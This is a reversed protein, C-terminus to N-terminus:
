LQRAHDAAGCDACLGPICLQQLAAHFGHDAKLRQALAQAVQLDAAIVRGCRQCILHLHPGHLSVLEYRHQSDGIDVSALLGVKQLLDLTRYVTSKDVASSIRQVRAFLEDATVLGEVEHLVDLVIQRPATLRYGRERLQRAFEQQCGL